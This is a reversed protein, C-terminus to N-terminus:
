CLSVSQNTIRRRKRSPFTSPWKLKCTTCLRYDASLTGSRKDPMLAQSVSKVNEDDFSVRCPPGSRLSVCRGCKPVTIGRYRPDRYRPDRYIPYQPQGTRRAPFNPPQAEPQRHLSTRM